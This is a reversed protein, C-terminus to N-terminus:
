KYLMAHTAAKLLEPETVADNLVWVQVGNPEVTTRLENTLESKTGSLQEEWHGAQLM